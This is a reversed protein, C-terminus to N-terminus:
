LRPPTNGEDMLYRLKATHANIIARPVLYWTSPIATCICSHFSWPSGPQMGVEGPCWRVNPCISYSPLPSVDQSHRLQYALSLANSGWSYAILEKHYKCVSTDLFTHNNVRCPGCLLEGQIMTEIGHYSRERCTIGYGPLCGEPYRNGSKRLSRIFAGILSSRCVPSTRTLDWCSCIRGFPSNPALSSQPKQSVEVIYHTGFSSDSVQMVHTLGEITTCPLLDPLHCSSCKLTLTFTLILYETPELAPIEARTRKGWGRMMWTRQKM